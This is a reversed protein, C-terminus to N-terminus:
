SPRASAGLDTRHHSPIVGSILGILRTIPPLVRESLGTRSSARRVRKGAESFWVFTSSVNSWAAQCLVCNSMHCGTVLHWLLMVYM